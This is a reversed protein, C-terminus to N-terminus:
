KKGVYIEGKKIRKNKPVVTLAGIVADDEIIVGPMIVAGTGITVNNGIIIDGLKLENNEIVHGTILADRGIFVNDGLTVHEPNLITGTSACNRGKKLGYLTLLNFYVGDMGPFKDYMSKVFNLMVANIPYFEDKKVLLRYIPFTFLTLFFLYAFYYAPILIPLLQPKLGIFNILYITPITPTVITHAYIIPLLLYNWKSLKVIHPLTFHKRQELIINLYKKNKSLVKRLSNLINLDTFM